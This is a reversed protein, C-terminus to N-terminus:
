ILVKSKLIDEILQQQDPTWAYVGITAGRGQSAAVQRALHLFEQQQSSLRGTSGKVEAIILRPPDDHLLFVDPLGRARRSGVFGGKRSAVMPAPVHYAKWGLREACAFIWNLLDREKM